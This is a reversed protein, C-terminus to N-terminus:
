VYTEACVIAHKQSKVRWFGVLVFFICYMCVAFQLESNVCQMVMFVWDFFQFFM